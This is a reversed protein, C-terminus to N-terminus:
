RLDGRTQEISLIWVVIQTAVGANAITGHDRGQAALYLLNSFTRPEISETGIASAGPVLIDNPIVISSPTARITAVRRPIGLLTETRCCELKIQESNRLIQYVSNMAFRGPTSSVVDSSRLFFNFLRMGEYEDPERDIQGNENQDADAGVATIALDPPLAGLNERNFIAVNKTTLERLGDDFRVLPVMQRTWDPFNIYEIRGLKGVMAAADERAQLLDTLPTGDHPTSLTNLSLVKFDKDHAPQFIQLYARSDLGGKSHAVLHISDVGFKKVIDPLQEDIKKANSKIPSRTLAISHDYLIFRSDLYSEFGTKEYFDGSQGNGHVLIIPSVAKFSIEAWDIATCWNVDTGSGQDIQITIENIGETPEGSSNRTGFRVLDIPVEFENLKWTNNSGSLSGINVGNFLVYDLEPPVGAAGELDVDFAPMRLRAMPSLVGSAIMQNPFQLTGNGSTAGVVRKIPLSIVLPGDPRYTCGTDLGSGDNIVFRTDTAKLPAIPSSTTGNTALLSPGCNPNPGDNQCPPSKQAWVSTSILILIALSLLIKRM